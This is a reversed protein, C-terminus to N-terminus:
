RYRDNRCVRSCWLLCYAATNLRMLKTANLTSLRIKRCCLQELLSTALHPRFWVHLVGAPGEPPTINTITEGPRALNQLAAASSSVGRSSQTLQRILRGCSAARGM